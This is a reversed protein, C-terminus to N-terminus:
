KSIIKPIPSKGQIEECEEIWYTQKHKKDEYYKVLEEAEIKTPVIKIEDSNGNNDLRLVKWGRQNKTQSTQSPVSFTRKQIGRWWM